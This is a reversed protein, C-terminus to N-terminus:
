YRSDAPLHDPGLLREGAPVSACQSWAHQSAPFKFTPLTIPEEQRSYGNKVVQIDQTEIIVLTQATNVEQM